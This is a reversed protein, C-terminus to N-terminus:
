SVNNKNYRIIVIGSGGSSGQGGWYYIGGGGGSGTNIAGDRYTGSCSSPNYGYGGLNYSTTNRTCTRMGGNGGEAYWQGNVSWQKPAGGKGGSSSHQGAGGAGGGGGCGGEDYSGGGPNGQAGYIAGGGGGSDGGGGGSAGALGANDDGAGGGGGYATLGFATTNNGNYGHGRNSTRIGGGAGITIAFAGSKNTLTGSLWGGAGGGGGLSSGGGGGAGGGIILYDLSSINAGGTDFTDSSTFTHWLYTGDDYMTGGVINSEGYFDSFRFIGSTPLSIGRGYFESITNPASDNFEEAIESMSIVGSTTLPM